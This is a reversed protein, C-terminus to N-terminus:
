KIYQYNYMKEVSSIEYYKKFSEKANTSLEQKKHDPLEIYQTLKKVLSGVEFDKSVFGNYDDIIVDVMGGVPTTIIPVGMSLAELAVIPMGERISSIVLADAKPLFDAANTHYGAFILNPANIKKLEMVLKQDSKAGVHTCTIQPYRKYIKDFGLSLLKYNKSDCIKGISIFNIESKSHLSFRTWFQNVENTNRKPHYWQIGNQIMATKLEPFYKKTEHYISPAICIHLIRNNIYRFRNVFSLRFKWKTINSHITHIYKIRPRIFSLLYGYIFALSLHMHIVEPQITGIWKNIELVQKLTYKNKWHLQILQVSHHVSKIFNNEINTEGLVIIFVNNHLVQQNALQVVFNEAGGVNLSKILHIIKM